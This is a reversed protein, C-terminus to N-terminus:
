AVPFKTIHGISIFKEAGAAEPRTSRGQPPDRESM